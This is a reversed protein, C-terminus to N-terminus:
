SRAEVRWGHQRLDTASIEGARYGCWAIVYQVGWRTTQIDAIVGACRPNAMDEYSVRAGVDLATLDIIAM